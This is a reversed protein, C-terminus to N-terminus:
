TAKLWHTLVATPVMLLLLALGWYAGYPGALGVCVAADLVIISQVASRVAAQVRGPSPQLVATVCRRLILIALVIWLLHWSSTTVWLSQSSSEAIWGPASTLLAMGALMVLTGGALRGRWSTRAETRAFMTVGVIYLGIGIAISWAVGSGWRVWSSTLETVLPGLSMGLLVNFMRCAGMLLPALPTRKLTWDYLVVCAALLSAVVAPRWDGALFGALWGFLTGSALLSWGLATAAALPVRGSPIPRSPRERTDAEVDFVDNLVMGALYLLCSSAALLAFLGTPRLNGHTVLFGMAVDAFATFVNPLRMLQLVAVLRSSNRQSPGRMSAPLSTSM